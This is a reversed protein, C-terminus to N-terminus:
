AAHKTAVGFAIIAVSMAWMLPPAITQVIQIPDYHQANYERKLIELEDVNAPVVFGGISYIV